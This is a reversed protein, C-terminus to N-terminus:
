VAPRFGPYSNIDGSFVFRILKSIEESEIVSLHGHGKAIFLKAGPTEAYWRSHAPPVNDDADGQLIALPVDGTVNERKFGWREFNNYIDCDEVFTDLNKDRLAEKFSQLFVKGFIPKSRILDQDAKPMQVLASQPISAMQCCCDGFFMRQMRNKRAAKRPNAFCDVNEQMMGATTLVDLPGVGAVCVVGILREPPMLARAALAYPGGGSHGVVGFTKIGLHDALELVDQVHHSIKRGAYHNSLGAGPRDVGIICINPFYSIDLCNVDLRSSPHGHHWFIHQQATKVDAGVILYGLQRGGKLMLVSSNEDYPGAGLQPHVVCCCCDFVPLCCGM